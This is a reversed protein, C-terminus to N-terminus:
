CSPNGKTKDNQEHLESRDPEHAREPHFLNWDPHRITDKVPDLWCVLNGLTREIDQAVIVVPLRPYQNQSDGAIMAYIALALQALRAQTPPKPRRRRYAAQRQAASKHLRPQPM